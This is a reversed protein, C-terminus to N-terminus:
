PPSDLETGSVHSAGALINRGCPEVSRRSRWSRRCRAARRGRRPPPRPRGASPTARFRREREFNGTLVMADTGLPPRALRANSAESSSACPQIRLASALFQHRCCRRSATEDREFAALPGALRHLRARESSRRSASPRVTTWVRSGPPEGCASASRSNMRDPAAARKPGAPSASNNEAARM